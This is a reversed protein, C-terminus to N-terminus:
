NLRSRTNAVATARWAREVVLLGKEYVIRTGLWYCNELFAFNVTNEGTIEAAKYRSQVQMAGAWQAEEVELRWAAFPLRCKAHQSAFANLRVLGLVQM